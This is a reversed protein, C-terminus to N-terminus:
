LNAVPLSPVMLVFHLLTPFFMTQGTVQASEVRSGVMGLTSQLAALRPFNENEGALPTMMQWIGGGGGGGSTWGLHPLITFPGFADLFLISMDVTLTSQWDEASQTSVQLSPPDHSFDDFFNTLNPFLIGTLHPLFPNAGFATTALHLPNERKKPPNAINSSESSFNDSSV